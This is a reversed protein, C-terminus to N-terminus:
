VLEVHIGVVGNSEDIISYWQRYVNVCETTSNFGQNPLVNEIGSMNIMEEFSKYLKKDTVKVDVSANSAKHKFTIIDGKKIKYFMGRNLRGEIKKKGNKILSFWPENLYVQYLANGSKKIDETVRKIKRQYKKYSTKATTKPM